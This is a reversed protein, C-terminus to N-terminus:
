RYLDYKDKEWKPTSMNLLRGAEEYSGTFSVNIFIYFINNVPFSLNGSIIQKSKEKVEDSFNSFNEQVCNIM